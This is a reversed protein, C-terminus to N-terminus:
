RSEARTTGRPVIRHRPLGAPPALHRPRDRRGILETLWESM